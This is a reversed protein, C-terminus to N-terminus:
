LISPIYDKVPHALEFGSTHFVFLSLSLSSINSGILIQGLLESSSTFTVFVITQLLQQLLHSVCPLFPAM